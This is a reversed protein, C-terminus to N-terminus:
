KWWTPHVGMVTEGDAHLVLHWAPAKGPEAAWVCWGHEGFDPDRKWQLAMQGNPKLPHTRWLRVTHQGEPWAHLTYDRQWLGVACFVALVALFGKMAAISGV